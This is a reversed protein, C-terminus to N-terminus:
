LSHTLQHHIPIFLVLSHHNNKTKKRRVAVCVINAGQTQREKARARKQVWQASDNCNASTTKELSCCFSCCCCSVRSFVNLMCHLNPRLHPECVLCAACVSCVCVVCLCLSVWLTMEERRRGGEITENSCGQPTRVLSAFSGLSTSSQATFDWLLRFQLVFLFLENLWFSYYVEEQLQEIRADHVQIESTAKYTSQVM